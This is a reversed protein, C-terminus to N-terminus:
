PVHERDAGLWARLASRARNLRVNVNSETTGQVAAIEKGSLGELHLMVTQRQAAPLRRIAEHLSVLREDRELAGEPTLRQDVIDDALEAFATRKLRAAYTMGRNHAVGLVFTLERSEGRFAPLAKWLAFYIEQLLDEQQSEDRAYGAAVRALPRAYQEIVRYFVDDSM